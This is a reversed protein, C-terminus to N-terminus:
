FAAMWTLSQKLLEFAELWHLATVSLHRSCLLTQTLVSNFLFMSCTLQRRQLSSFSLVGMEELAFKRSFSVIKASDTRPM